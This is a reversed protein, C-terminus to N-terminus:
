SVHITFTRVTTARVQTKVKPLGRNRSSPPKPNNSTSCTDENKKKNKWAM